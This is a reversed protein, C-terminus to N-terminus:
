EVLNILTKYDDFPANRSKMELIDFLEGEEAYIDELDLLTQETRIEVKGQQLQDIRWQYTQNIKTWMRHQVDMLDSDPTVALAQTFSQNSRAIMKGNEIIFYATDAIRDDDTVLRAYMTLQLDEENKILLERRKAGRWKLDIVVHQDGKELVVDAKARIPTLNLAGDLNMETSMVRWGNSQIMYVLSWAAYKVRNLFALREPERGYMLMTAGERAFLRPAESDIWEEVQEKTWNTIDEKLLLEFFRHSLNGMLTVDPVISLISSKILKIKYRFVWQYPYYFLSELSTFTEYDRQGLEPTNVNIFSVPQGLQRPSLATKYPVSIYQEFQAKGKETNIDFEILEFNDFAAELDGKLAHPQIEKGNVMEPIVLILRNKALLIPRKRQWLGRQNKQVPSELIIGQKNLYDIENTYWCSFFHGPDYHTFNWWLVEDAATTIASPNYVYPLHGVARENFVVPSPEYITRVIRELELASLHTQADPLTEVLDQIRKAQESLVILSSNVSGGDEFEQFAWQSIYFFIDTVDEKPVGQNTNYRTRRFWFNYQFRTQQVDIRTDVKAREELEEFFRAIMANWSSSLIGPTRAMQQAIRRALEDHLPKITLSVFELIKYPDIPNWLFTTVLKLLQLSPRASSASLIGLSPLGEQILANDLARNKEPIICLPRFETDQVLIKSLYSALQTERKGKIIVLSGDGTLTQKPTKNELAFQWKELDTSPTKTHEQKYISSIQVGKEKLISFLQHIHSSLLELPENIFIKEIPQKKFPLEKLVTRFRDAFGDTLARKNAKKDIFDQNTQQIHAEMIALVQLREPTDDNVSFDWGELVLEDRRKLLENATAFQDADFSRSYFATGYTDLYHILIQRYQEIRLHENNTPHGSLGLHDEFFHLLEQTNVVSTGTLNQQSFPYCMDDLELGFYLNMKDIPKLPYIPCFNEKFLKFFYM